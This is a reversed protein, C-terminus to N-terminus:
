SRAYIPRTPERRVTNRRHIHVKLSCMKWDNLPQMWQLAQLLTEEYM